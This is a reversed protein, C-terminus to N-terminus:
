FRYTVSMYLQDQEEFTGTDREYSFLLYWRKGIAANVGLGFWTLDRDLSPSVNTEDLRGGSFELDVGPAVSVGASLAFIEGNSQLNSFHTARLRM